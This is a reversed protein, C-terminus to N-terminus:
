ATPTAEWAGYGGILDYAHPHGHHRLLSAAISSRSGGACHLVM